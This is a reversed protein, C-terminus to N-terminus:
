VLAVNLRAVEADHRSGTQRDDILRLRSVQAAGVDTGEHAQRMEDPTRDGLASHPRMANYDRRWSDLQHQADAVSIFQQTNLGEDRLRGNFSEIFTNEVPKGPRIFALTTRRRHAWADMAQSRFEGVAASGDHGLHAAVATVIDENCVVSEIEHVPLVTVGETLNDLVADPSFDRDVLGVVEAGTVGAAKLGRVAACVSDRDGAPIAFTEDDDFWAEIFESAFGKGAEGEYFVIRKAFFPLTAAGLIDKIISAPLDPVPVVEAEDSSRAILVTSSRRPM